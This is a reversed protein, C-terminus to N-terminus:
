GAERVEPALRANREEWRALEDDAFANALSLMPVHHRYKVFGEAPDTGVRLTPSDPTRLEPHNAELAALEQFLRDFEADSIEPHALVYYQHNARELLRRLEAARAAPAKV